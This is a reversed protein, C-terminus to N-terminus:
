LLAKVKRAKDSYANNADIIRDLKEIAKGKQQQKLYILAEYWHAANSFKSTHDISSFYALARADSGTALLAQAMYFNITDNKEHDSLVELAAKYNGQEYLKLGEIGSTSGSRNAPAIVNPYPSYLENYIAKTDVSRMQNVILYSVTAILALSAAIALWKYRRNKKGEGKQLQSKLSRVTNIAIGTRVDRVFQLTERLSENSSLESEFASAENATLEGRLYKEARDIYEEKISM